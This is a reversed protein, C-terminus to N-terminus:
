EFSYSLTAAKNVADWDMEVGLGSGDPAHVFGDRDTRIVNKAGYEFNEYPYAQEFYRCNHHALAVHLNAAQTITYGWSQIELPKGFAEALAFCKNLPTIGGCVTADQRVDSWLDNALAHAVEPLTVLCNGHSSIQVSTESVLRQYTKYDYDTVPAEFWTWQYEELLKAMQLAEKRTYYMATDLMFNIGSNKYREHVAQVLKRDKAFVCYCHLKIATFGHEICGDIFPFYEEVTDFMPTSSYSLMKTRGGGLMMYLPMGVKKGKVDWAAIDFPSKAVLGGWSCRNMLWRNLEETMLANKGIMGPAINRMSEVICKDFDNETYSITAGVGELGDETMIRVINNTYLLPEQDDAWPLADANVDAVAYIEIRAINSELM